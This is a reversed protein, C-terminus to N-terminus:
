KVSIEVVFIVSEHALKGHQLTIVNASRLVKKASYRRAGTFKGAGNQRKVTPHSADPGCTGHQGM